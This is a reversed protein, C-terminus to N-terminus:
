TRKGRRSVLNHVHVHDGAAIAMRAMGIIEGYKRVDAGAAVGRLAIKHGMPIEASATVCTAQEGEIRVTEGRAVARLAVAVDDLRHLALADCM